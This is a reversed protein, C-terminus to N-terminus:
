SRRLGILAALSAGILPVGPPTVSMLAITITGGGIAAIVADRRRSRQHSKLEGALLSLSITSKSFV